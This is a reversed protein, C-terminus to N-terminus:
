QLSSRPPKSIQDKLKNLETSLKIIEEAGRYGYETYSNDLGAYKPYEVDM